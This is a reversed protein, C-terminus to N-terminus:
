LLEETGFGLYDNILRSQAIVGELRLIIIESMPSIYNDKIKETM